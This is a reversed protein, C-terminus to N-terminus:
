KFIFRAISCVFLIDSFNCNRKAHSEFEVGLELFLKKASYWNSVSLFKVTEKTLFEFFLMMSCM